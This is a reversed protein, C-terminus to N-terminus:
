RKFLELQADSFNRNGKAKAKWRNGVSKIKAELQQGAPLKRADPSALAPVVIIKRSKGNDDSVLHADLGESRCFALMEAATASAPRALTFYWLGEVRPDGGAPSATAAPGPPPQPPSLLPDQVTRATAQVQELAARQALGESIGVSRGKGYGLYFVIVLLVAAGAIMLLMTGSAVRMVRPTSGVIPSPLTAGGEARSSPRWLEYLTPTGRRRM